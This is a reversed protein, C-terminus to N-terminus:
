SLQVRGVYEAPGERSVHGFVGPGEPRGVYEYTHHFYRHETSKGDLWYSGDGANIFCLGKWNPAREPERHQQKPAPMHPSGPRGGLACRPLTVEILSSAEILSHLCM